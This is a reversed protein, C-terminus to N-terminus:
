DSTDLIYNELEYQPTLYAPVITSISYTGNGADRYSWRTRRKVNAALYRCSRTELGQLSYLPVLKRRSSGGRRPADMPPSLLQHARFWTPNRPLHAKESSYARENTTSRRAATHSPNDRYISGFLSSSPPPHTTTRRHSFRCVRATCAPSGARRYPREPHWPSGNTKTEGLDPDLNIWFIRARKVRRVEPPGYRRDSQRRTLVLCLFYVRYFAVDRCLNVPARADTPFPASFRARPPRVYEKVLLLYCTPTRNLFTKKEKKIAGVAILRFLKYTYYLWM